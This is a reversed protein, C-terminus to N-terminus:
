TSSAKRIGKLLAVLDNTSSVEIKSGYYEVIFPQKEVASARPKGLNVMGGDSAQRESTHTSGYERLWKYFASRSIGSRKAYSAFSDEKKEVRAKAREVHEQKEVRSYKM